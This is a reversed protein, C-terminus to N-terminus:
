RHSGWRGSGVRPRWPRAGARGHRRAGSWGAPRRGARGRPRPSRRRSCPRAGPPGTWPRSGRAAGVVLRRRGACGPRAGVRGEARAPRRAGRGVAKGRCARRLVVRRGAADSPEPSGATTTSSWGAAGSRTKGRWAVRAGGSTADHGARGGDMGATPEARGSTGAAHACSDPPSRRGARPKESSSRTPPLGSGTLAGQSGAGGTAADYEGSGSAARVGGNSGREASRYGRGAAGDSRPTAPWHSGSTSGSGM